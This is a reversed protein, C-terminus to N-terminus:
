GMRYSRGPAYGPKSTVSLETFGNPNSLNITGTLNRPYFLSSENFVSSIRNRLSEVHWVEPVGTRYYCNHTEPQNVRLRLGGGVALKFVVISDHLTGLFQFPQETQV